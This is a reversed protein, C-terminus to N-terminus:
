KCQAAIQNANDGAALVTAQAAKVTSNLEPVKIMALSNNAHVLADVTQQRSAAPALQGAVLAGFIGQIVDNASNLGVQASAVASGTHLDTSSINMANLTNQTARINFLLQLRALNCDLDGIQRKHPAAVASAAVALGFVISSIRVM